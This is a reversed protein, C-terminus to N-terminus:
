GERKAEDFDPPAFAGGENKKPRSLQMRQQPATLTPALLLSVYAEESVAKPAYDDSLGMVAPQSGKGADLEMPKAKVRMGAGKEAKEAPEDVDDGMYAVDDDARTLTWYPPAYYQYLVVSTCLMLFTGFSAGLLCFFYTFFGKYLDGCIQTYVGDAIAAGTPGSCNYAAVVATNNRAYTATLTTRAAVLGSDYRCVGATASLAGLSTNVASAYTAIQAVTSDLPSPFVFTNGCSSYYLAYFLLPSATATPASPTFVQLTNTVPATCYDSWAMLIPLMFFAVLSTGASAVLQSAAALQTVGKSRTGVAVGSLLCVFTVFAYIVYVAYMKSSVAYMNLVDTLQKLRQPMVASSDYLLQNSTQLNVLTTLTPIVAAMNAKACAATNVSNYISGISSLYKQALTGIKNYQNTVFSVDALLNSLAVDYFTNGLFLLHAGAMAIVVHFWFVVQLFTRRVVVKDAWSPFNDSNGIDKVDPACSGCKNVNRSVLVTLLVVFAVIGIGFLIAPFTILSQVYPQTTYLRDPSLQFANSGKNLAWDIRPIGNILKVIRSPSYTAATNM